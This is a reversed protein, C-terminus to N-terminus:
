LTRHEPRLPAHLRADPLQHRLSKLAPQSELQSSRKYWQFNEVIAEYNPEYTKSYM